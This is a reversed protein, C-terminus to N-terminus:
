KHTAGSRSNQIPVSSSTTQEIQDLNKQIRNSYLNVFVGFGIVVIVIAWLTKRFRKLQKFPWLGTMRIDGRVSYELLLHGGVFVLITILLITPILGIVKQVSPVLRHGYWGGLGSSFIVVALLGCYALLARQQKQKEDMQQWKTQLEHIETSQSAIQDDAKKSRAQEQLVQAKLEEIQQEKSRKVADLTALASVQNEVTVKLENAINAEAQAQAKVEEVLVDRIFIIEADEPGDIKLRSRLGDNLIVRTITHESIDQAGEFRGLGKLIKLSTREAEVDFEQFLFPLRLTGLVAEEFAKTRPVWFQLLQILSTPHICLPVNSGSKKQRHQDYGILRFDLTLIWDKTDLPSEVYAPRQDNVFHWLIMDHAITEYYKRKNKPFKKKEFEMILHIEDVVDQRTAYEDLRENYFEIGKSRAIAVFDKLYPDYWDEASLKSHRNLRESLFRQVMGSLNVQLAAQTFNNGSPLGTLQVKAADITRRAEDVTRPTIYLKIKLNSKLQLILEQLEHAAANSPNEHLDLMSFLFNTDLFIRFEIDKGITSNLKQIVNESLGSAEVCFRAHIMRSIHSRVEENKPDLFISILERLKLHFRDPFKSLFAEVLHGNGIMRTGSILRYGNAGIDAVLPALFESDFISWVAQPDLGECLTPVLSRFYICAGEEATEAASIEQEFIVRKTEPIKLTDDPLRLLMGQAELANVATSVKAPGIALQFEGKLTELIEGETPAQDALWVASLVLRQITKEWWGARNLEIHHFLATVEKSLRTEPRGM